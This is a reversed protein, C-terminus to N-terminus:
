RTVRALFDLLARHFPEPRDLYSPHSAGALLLWEAGPVAEVLERGLAPPVVADEEGWVALLPVRIGGLRARHEPVGVPAAAVFGAVRAPHDLVLPFAFRGSMSPAVLVVEALGLADLFSALFDDAVPVPDSGGFGPLDLALARYGAAALLDLTGLQRWTAAEFRAGHLLLVAPGAAPGTALLHLSGGEWPVTRSAAASAEPVQAALAPVALAALAAGLARM